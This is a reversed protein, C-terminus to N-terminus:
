VYNKSFNRFNKGGNKRNEKEYKKEFNSVTEGAVIGSFVTLATKRRPSLVESKTTKRM